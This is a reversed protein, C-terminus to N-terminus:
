MDCVVLAVTTFLEDLFFVQSVSSISVAAAMLCDSAFAPTRLHGGIPRCVVKSYCSFTAEGNTVNVM